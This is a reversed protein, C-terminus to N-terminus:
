YCTMKNYWPGNKMCKGCHQDIDFRLHKNKNIIFLLGVHHILVHLIFNTIVKNLQENHLNLATTKDCNNCKIGIMDPETNKDYM